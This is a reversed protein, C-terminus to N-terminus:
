KSPRFGNLFSHTSDGPGSVIFRDETTVDSGPKAAIKRRRIYSAVFQKSDKNDIARKTEAYRADVDYTQSLQQQM